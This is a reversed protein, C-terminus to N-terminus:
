RQVQVLIGSGARVGLSRHGAPFMLVQYSILSNTHPSPDNLAIEITGGCYGSWPDTRYLDQRMQRSREMKVVWKTHRYVSQAIFRIRGM